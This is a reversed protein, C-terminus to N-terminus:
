RPMAPLGQVSRKTPLTKKKGGSYGSVVKHVGALEVYVAETCWFCGGGFTVKALPTTKDQSETEQQESDAAQLPRHSTSMFYTGGALILIALILTSSIIKFTNHPRLM